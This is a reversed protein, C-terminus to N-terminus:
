QFQRREYGPVSPRRRAGKRLDAQWVQQAPCIDNTEQSTEACRRQRTRIFCNRINQRYEFKIDLNPGGRYTRAGILAKDLQPIFGTIRGDPLARRLVLTESPVRLAFLYSLFYAQGHPTDHKAWGLIKLLDPARTFNPPKLALPKRM